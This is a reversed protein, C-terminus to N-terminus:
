CVENAEPDLVESKSTRTAKDDLVEIWKSSEKQGGMHM